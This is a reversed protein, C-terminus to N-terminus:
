CIGLGEQIRLICRTRLLLNIIIITIIFRCNILHLLMALTVVIAGVIKAARVRSVTLSIPVISCTHRSWIKSRQYHSLTPASRIGLPLRNWAVPGAVCFARNGLQLRTRTRGFRWSCRFPSCYPQSCHFSSHVDRESLMTCTRSNGQVGTRRTQVLHAGCWVPPKCREGCRSSAKLFGSKYPYPSFTPLSLPHISYCFLLPPSLSPRKRWQAWPNGGM